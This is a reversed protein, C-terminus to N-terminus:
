TFEKLRNYQIYKNYIKNTTYYLIITRTRKKIM